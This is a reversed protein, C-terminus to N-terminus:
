NTSFSSLTGADVLHKGADIDDGMTLEAVPADLM